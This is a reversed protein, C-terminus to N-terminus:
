DRGIKSRRGGEPADIPNSQVAVWHEAIEVVNLAAVRLNDMAGWLWYGSEGAPDKEVRGLMIENSGVVDVVTPQTALDRCVSFPRRELGKELEEPPVPKEMEVFCCFAHGFFIPTQLLRLAPAPVRGELLRRVHDGIRGQVQRLSSPAHEGYGSLLNFAVQTDFVDRPVPQFSLLNVTQRHLEEVGAQGRESAPEFVAGVSRVITSCCSLRRLIGAIAIAAPHAGVTIRHNSVPVPPSEGDPDWLGEITAARLGAQPNTELGYSVDIIQCGCEYAAQWHQETFAPSGAFIAIHTQQFHDQTLTPLASPEEERGGSPGAWEEELSILRGLPFGREKLVAKVEKGKLTSAGIIALNYRQKPEREVPKHGRRSESRGKRLALTRVVGGCPM